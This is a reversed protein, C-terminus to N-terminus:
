EPPQMKIQMQSDTKTLFTDCHIMLYYLDLCMYCSCFQQKLLNLSVGLVDPVGDAVGQEDQVPVQANLGRVPGEVLGELGRRFLGLVLGDALQAVSLPVERGQQVQEALDDRALVMEVVVFHRV